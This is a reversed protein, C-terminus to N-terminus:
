KILIITRLLAIRRTVRDKMDQELFERYATPDTFWLTNDLNNVYESFKDLEEMTIDNAELLAKFSMISTNIQEGLQSLEM